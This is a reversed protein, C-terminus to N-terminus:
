GELMQFYIDGNNGLSAAPNATGSYYTVWNLNELTTIRSDFGSVSETSESWGSSKLMYHKIDSVNRQLSSNLNNSRIMADHSAREQNKILRITNLNQKQLAKIQKDTGKTQKNHIYIM